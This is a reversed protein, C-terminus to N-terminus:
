SVSKFGTIPWIRLVVKGIIHSEPLAGVESWRSDTSGNRNDCMVFVSGEPVTDPFQQNGFVTIPEKIYPEYQEEGNLILTGSDYNFDVTDGPLAVIRKVLPEDPFYDSTIVVIDGREPRDYDIVRMVIQDGSNFTPVMSTGRVGSLRFFWTNVCVLVVLAFTLAQAWFYLETGPDSPQKQKEASEPPNETQALHKPAKKQMREM